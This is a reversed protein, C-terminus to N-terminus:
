YTLCVYVSVSAPATEAGSGFRIIFTNYTQEEAAGVSPRYIQKKEGSQSVLGTTQAFPYTSFPGGYYPSLTGEHRQIRDAGFEGISM